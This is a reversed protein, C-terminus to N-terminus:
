ADPAEPWDVELPYGEQTPVRSLYVRYARWANYDATEQETAIGLDVADQLPAITTNARATESAVRADVQAKADNYAKEELAAPDAYWAGDVWTYLDSPRPITTLWAPPEGYGDYETDAAPTYEAGDSTQYFKTKSNDAVLSWVGTGEDGFTADTRHSLETVWRLAFGEPPVPRGDELFTIAQGDVEEPVPVAVALHPKSEYYQINVFILSASLQMWARLTTQVESM